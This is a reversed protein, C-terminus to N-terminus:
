DIHYYQLSVCIYLFLCHFEGKVPQEKHFDVPVLQADRLVPDDLKKAQELVEPLDELVCRKMALGPIAKCMNKLCHGKGGGVDVVLAREPFESAKPVIWDLNYTGLTPWSEEAADMAQMFTRMTEPNM